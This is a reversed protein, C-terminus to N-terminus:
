PIQVLVTVVQLALSFRIWDPRIVPLTANTRTFYLGQSMRLLWREQMFYPGCIFPVLAKWFENYTRSIM